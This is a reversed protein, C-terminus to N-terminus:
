GYAVRPDLLAYLVDTLLNLVVIFFALVLVIGQVLPYDRAEIGVLVLTGLGPLTFVSEVVLAATLLQAFELGLVTVIPIAANRLAHRVLIREEPVGKARATRVYDEGLVELLSARVMRAFLAARTLALTLVPLVLHALAAPLHHWGPFGGSPLVGLRVSFFGIFLLGVWFSPLVIGGLAFTSVVLDLRYGAARAAITGLMTGLTAAVGVSAFVVPLTVGLRAAILDGIPRGYRISTGLDGRVVRSLWEVYRLVPPRDLGLQHRLAALAEPSAELGLITQAPDGPVLLLAWFVLLTVLWLTLAAVGLRQLFFSTM